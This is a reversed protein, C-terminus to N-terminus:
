ASAPALPKVKITGARQEAQWADYQLQLDLWLRIDRNPFAKALRIAMDSSIDTRGNVLESLAKRTVGLGEAAATITLDLPKANRKHVTKLSRSAAGGTPFGQPHGKSSPTGPM